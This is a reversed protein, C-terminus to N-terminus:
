RSLVAPLWLTVMPFFLIVLVRVLEAGLFPAVGLFIRRMPINRAIAGIVFVNLGVPPTILGLEVVILCLIGFWVKLQDQDMGFAADEALVLAGGNIEALVPWFFPVMVLIMSLSDMFCGLVIFVLLVLLLLMLPSIEAMQAWASLATPLGSRTFFGKLIEAGFLVFCIMGATKATELLSARLKSLKLRGIALGYAFIAFVGVAATPTPTFLGFALGAFIAAFILVVPLARLLDRRREDQAFERASGAYGPGCRALVAIVCLFFVVALLGPLIAGQFMDIISADVIVAYIVLVASPPILIGLTGGAALVGAAFGPDYRMRELEPLAIRGMTSATALSSGCVAGFGACAGVAAMALGGRLKGALAAAGAFLDRSLGINASLYGMLIFLPLISLEYSGATSWLLTKFQKLYPVFRFHPEALSLALNGGLGVLLMGLGIPARLALLVFLFLLGCAGLLETPM